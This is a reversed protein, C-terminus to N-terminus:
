AVNMWEAAACAGVVVLGFDGFVWCASVGKGIALACGSLVADSISASPFCRFSIEVRVAAACAGLVVLFKM